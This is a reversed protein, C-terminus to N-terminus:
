HKKKSEQNSSQWLCSFGLGLLLAALVFYVPERIINLDYPIGLLIALILGLISFRLYVSGNTLFIDKM